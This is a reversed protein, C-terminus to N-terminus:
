ENMDDDEDDDISIAEGPHGLLNAVDRMEYHRKRMEEFKRHKEQEEKSAGVNSVTNDEKVHVSKERGSGSRSRVMRGPEGGDNEPVIEEPEGLDLGPIEEERAHRKKISRDSDLKDKEDVIIEEADLTRIEEDDESPDYHQAYPTKPEDIKMTSSKEQETFYLNAEDWKLRMSSEEDPLSPTLSSQRRSGGPRTSSPSRRHGANQITNQLTIEKDIQARDIIDAPIADPMTVNSVPKQQPPSRQFSNKLIGVFYLLNTQMSLNKLSHIKHPLMGKPRSQKESGSASRKVATIESDM